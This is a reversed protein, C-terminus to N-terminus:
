PFQVHRTIFTCSLLPDSLAGFSTPGSRCKDVNCRSIASILSFRCLLGSKLYQSPKTKWIKIHKKEDQAAYMIM